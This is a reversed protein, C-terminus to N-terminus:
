DGSFRRRILTALGVLGSGLLVLLGPEPLVSSKVVAPAALLNTSMLVFLLAPGLKQVLSVGKATYLRLGNALRTIKVIFEYLAKAPLFV